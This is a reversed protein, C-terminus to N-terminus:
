TDTNVVCHFCKRNFKSKFNVKGNPKKDPCENSKHGFKGCHYCRGKFKGTVLAAEVEEENQNEETIENLKAYRVTLKDRIQDLDYKDLDEEIITVITDYEEPLNSLIHIKMDKDSIKLGLDEIRSRLVELETIWEDPDEQVSKLKLQQFQLKLQVKSANTKPKYKNELRSWALGADGSPLDKTVSGAVISYSIDDECSLILDAFAKENAMRIKMQKKGNENSEDIDEDESPVKVKQLLVDAYKKMRAAALFKGSWKCHDNKKGKFTIVRITKSELESM